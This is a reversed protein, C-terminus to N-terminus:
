NQHSAYNILQSPSLRLYRCQRLLSWPQCSNDGLISLVEDQTKLFENTSVSDIWQGLRQLCLSLEPNYKGGNPDLYKSRATSILLRSNLQQTVRFLDSDTQDYVRHQPAFISAYKKLSDVFYKPDTPKMQPFLSNNEDNNDCTNKLYLLYEMLYKFGESKSNNKESTKIADKKEIKFGSDSVKSSKMYEYTKNLLKDEELAPFKKRECNDANHFEEINNTQSNSYTPAVSLLDAEFYGSIITQLKESIENRDPIKCSDLGSTSGSIIPKSLTKCKNAVNTKVRSSPRSTQNNDFIKFSNDGTQTIATKNSSKFDYQRIKNAIETSKLSAKTHCDFFSLRPLAKELEEDTFISIYSSRTLVNKRRKLSPM